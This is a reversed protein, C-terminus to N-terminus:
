MKDCGHSALNSMGGDVLSGRAAWGNRGSSPFKSSHLISSERKNTNKKGCSELSVRRQFLIFFGVVRSLFSQVSASLRVSFPNVQTYASRKLTWMMKLSPAAVMQANLQADHAQSLLLACLRPSIGGDFLVRPHSGNIFCTSCCYNLGVVYGCPATLCLLWM